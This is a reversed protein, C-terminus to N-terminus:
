QIHKLYIERIKKRGRSLLQRVNAPSCGVAEAIEDTQMEGFISMRVVTGQSAPLRDIAAALFGAADEDPPAPATPEPVSELDASDPRARRRLIDIATFRLIKFAYAEPTRIEALGDATNWIKVMAEQVADAADDSDALIAIAAGYLRQYLPLYRARFLEEIPNM